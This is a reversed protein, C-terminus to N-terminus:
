PQVSSTLRILTDLHAECFAEAQPVSMGRAIAYAEFANYIMAHAIEREEPDIAWRYEICGKIILNVLQHEQHFDALLQEAVSLFSSESM